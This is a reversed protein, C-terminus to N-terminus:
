IRKIEILTRPENLWAVHLPHSSVLRLHEPIELPKENAKMALVRTYSTVLHQVSVLLDKFGAFARCTIIRPMEAPKFDEVRQNVVQINELGLEIKVQTLFRTKKGNSDLLIFQRQPQCIALPIGPLGAGTGVDLVPSADIFPLVSLSDLLHRIVMQELDRIATLNYAKNWKQLLQLYAMLLSQAQQDVPLGMQELGQQLRLEPTM